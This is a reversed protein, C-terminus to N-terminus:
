IVSVRFSGAHVQLVPYIDRVELGHSIYIASEQEQLLRVRCAARIERFAYYLTNFCIGAEKYRPLLVEFKVM